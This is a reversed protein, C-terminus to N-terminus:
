SQFSRVVLDQLYLLSQLIQKLLAVLRLLHGLFIHQVQELADQDLLLLRIVDLSADPLAQRHELNVQLVLVVESLTDFLERLLLNEFQKVDQQGVFSHNLVVRLLDLPPLRSQIVLLRGLGEVSLTLLLKRYVWELDFNVGVLVLDPELLQVKLQWLVRVRLRHSRAM